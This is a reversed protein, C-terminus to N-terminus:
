LTMRWEVRMDQASTHTIIDQTVRAVLVGTDTTSSAVNVTAEDVDYGTTFLGFEQIPGLAGSNYFWTTIYLTSGVTDRYLSGILTRGLSGTPAECVLTTMGATTTGGSYGAAVYAQTVTMGSVNDRGRFRDAIWNRGVTTISNHNESVLEDDIYVKVYNDYENLTRAM